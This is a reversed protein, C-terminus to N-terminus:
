PRRTHFVGEVFQCHEHFGLKLYTARAADNGNRVNLVVDRCGQRFLEAAVASTTTSALGRGRYAGQTLVNGIAGVGHRSSACHTGAIAVLERGEWVGYYIGASLQSPLQNVDTWMGYIRKVAELHSVDLRQAQAQLRPRFSAGGVRMRTMQYATTVQISAELGRLAEAKCSFVGSTPLTVEAAVQALGESEGSAFLSVLKPLQVLAVLGTLRGERESAWLDVQPGDMTGLPDLYSLPYASWAHDRRLFEIADERAPQFVRGLAQSVTM